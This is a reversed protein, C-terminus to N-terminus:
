LQEGAFGLSAVLLFLEPFVRLLRRFFSLKLLLPGQPWGPIYSPVRSSPYKSPTSSSRNDFQSSNANWQGEPANNLYQNDYSM